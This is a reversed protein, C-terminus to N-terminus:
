ADRNLLPEIFRKCFDYGQLCAIINWPLNNGPALFCAVLAKECPGPSAAGLVAPAAVGLAFLLVLVASSVRRLTRM